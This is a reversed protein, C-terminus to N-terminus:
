ARKILKGLSVAALAMESRALDFSENRSDIILVGWNHGGDLEIMVGAFSRANVKGKRTTLWERSVKATAAYTQYEQETPSQTDLDPLKALTRGDPNRWVSGIFGEDSKPRDFYPFWSIGKQAAQGSRAMPRFWGDPWTSPEFINGRQCLAKFASRNYLFCWKNTRKFITIRHEEDSTKQFLEKKWRTLINQISKWAWPAGMRAIVVKSIVVSASLIFIWVKEEQSFAILSTAAWVGTWKEPKQSAAFTLVAVGIGAAWQIFNFSYYVVDRTTVQRMM